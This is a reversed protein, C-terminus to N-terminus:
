RGPEHGIARRGNDTIQWRHPAFESEKILGQRELETTMPAVDSASGQDGIVETSLAEDSMPGREYLLELIYPDRNGLEV